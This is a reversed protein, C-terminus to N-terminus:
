RVKSKRKKNEDPFAITAHATEDAAKGGDEADFFEEISGSGDVEVEKENIDGKKSETRENEIETEEPAVEEVNEEEEKVEDRRRNVESGLWWVGNERKLGCMGLFTEDFNNYKVHQEDEKDNLPVDFAHFIRTLLQGYPLEHRPTNIVYGMHRKIVRPLNVLKRTILYDMYTLDM